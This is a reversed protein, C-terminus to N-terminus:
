NEPDAYCQVSYDLDTKRKAGSKVLLDRVKKTMAYVGTTDIWAVPEAPVIRLGRAALERITILVMVDNGLVETMAADFEQKTM